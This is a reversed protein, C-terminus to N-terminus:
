WAYYWGRKRIVEDTLYEPYKDINPLVERLQADSRVEEKYEEKATKKLTYYAKSAEKMIIRAIRSQIMLYKDLLRHGAIYHSLRYSFFDDSNFKAEGYFKMGSDACKSMVDRVICGVISASLEPTLHIFYRLLSKQWHKLAYENNYIVNSFTGYYAYIKNGEQIYCINMSLVIGDGNYM